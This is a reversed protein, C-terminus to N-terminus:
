EYSYYLVPTTMADKTAVMSIPWLRQKHWIPHVPQYFSCPRRATTKLHVIDDIQSIRTASATNLRQGYSQGATLPVTM